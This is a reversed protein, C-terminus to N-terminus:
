DWCPFESIDIYISPGGDISVQVQGTTPSNEDFTITLPRIDNGAITMTGAYPIFSGYQAYSVQVDTMTVSADVDDDSVNGTFTAITTVGDQPSYQVTGTGDTHAQFDDAASTYTLGWTGTFSLQGDSRQYALDAQGTLSDDGMTLDDFQLSFSQELASMSGSASGAFTLEDFGPPQCGTGFDVSFAWAGEGGSGLASAELSVHPCTGFDRSTTIPLDLGAQESEDNVAGQATTTAGCLSVTAGSANGLTQQEAGTLQEQGNTGDDTPTSAAPCGGLALGFVVPAAVLLLSGPSRGTVGISM